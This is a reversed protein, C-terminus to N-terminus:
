GITKQSLDLLKRRLLDIKKTTVYRVTSDSSTHAHAARINFDCTFDSFVVSLGDEKRRVCLQSKRKFITVLCGDPQEVVELSQFSRLWNFVDVPYQEICGLVYPTSLVIEDQKLYFTELVKTPRPYKSEFTMKPPINTATIRLTQWEREKMEKMRQLQQNIETSHKLVEDNLYRRVLDLTFIPRVEVTQLITKM